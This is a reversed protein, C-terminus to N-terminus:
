AAVRGLAQSKGSITTRNVLRQDGPRIGSASHAFRWNDWLIMQDLSWTHTYIHQPELLHDLLHRLLADGDARPMGEIAHMFLECVNLIRQGTEPHTIALPYISDPYKPYGMAEISQPSEPGPAYTPDNVFRMNKLVVDFRYRVELQDIRAATEADLSEYAAAQDAFGTQGMKTDMSMACLVAGRNPKATYVLDKHWHLRGILPKGDFYNIPNTKSDASDLVFLYRNQKSRVLPHVALEGFISSFGVQTEPNVRQGSFLLLGHELWLEYVDQRQADSLGDALDIGLVELGVHGHPQLPRTELVNSM